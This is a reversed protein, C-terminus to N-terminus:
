ILCRRRTPSCKWRIPGPKACPTPAPSTISGASLAELGDHELLGANLQEDAQHVTCHMSWLPANFSFFCDLLHRRDCERSTSRKEPKRPSLGVCFVSVTDVLSVQLAFSGNEARLGPFVGGCPQGQSSPQVINYQSM